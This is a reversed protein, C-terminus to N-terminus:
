TSNSARHLKTLFFSRRRLAFRQLSFDPDPNGQSRLVPHHDGERKAYRLGGQSLRQHRVGFCPEAVLSHGQPDTVPQVRITGSEKRAMMDNFDIGSTPLPTPRSPGLHHGARRQTIALHDLLPIVLSMEHTNGFPRHETIDGELIDVRYVDFPVVQIQSMFVAAKGSLSNSETFIDHPKLPLHMQILRVKVQGTGMAAKPLAEITTVNDSPVMSTRRHGRANGIM